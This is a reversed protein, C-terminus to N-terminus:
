GTFKLHFSLIVDRCTEPTDICMNSLVIHNRFRFIAVPAGLVV